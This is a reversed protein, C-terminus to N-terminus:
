EFVTLYYGDPDRLSFERQHAIENYAAASAIGCGMSEAREYVVDLQDVRLYIVLGHGARRGDPALMSPHECAGWHHLMLVM